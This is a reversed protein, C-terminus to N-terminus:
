KRIHEWTLPTGRTIDSAAVKGLIEEYYKPALGYGPRISRINKETFPEGQKIDSVVMLSKRFVINEAEKKSGSGLTPVGIAQEAERIARVLQLLENPELSFAADPGGAARDVTVHKEIVRAGLSVAAVAATTGLTHDSLGAIVPFESALFPITSLNMQDPTAPYSSVCHLLAIVPTGYDRLTKIALDIEERSAMGRSVIVPKKTQAIKKLLPIDVIEFSAVKYVDVGLDKLFDVATPDFPTSFFILNKEEAYRKLEAQWEWPTYAEQYLQYLTKGAWDKNVTVQFYKNDCDITITDPTYTQTKIADVGAAAAADIIAKARNISHNHNGSMEAIIFVPQGPGIKRKGITFEM